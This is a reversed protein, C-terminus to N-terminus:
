LDDCIIIKDVEDNEAAWAEEMITLRRKKADFSIHSPRRGQYLLYEHPTQKIIEKYCKEFYKLKNVSNEDYLSYDKYNDLFKQAEGVLLNIKLKENPLDYSQTKQLLGNVINNSISVYWLIINIKDVNDDKYYPNNATTMATIGIGATAQLLRLFISYIKRIKYGKYLDYLEERYKVIIQHNYIPNEEEGEAVEEGKMLDLMAAVKPNLFLYSFLM